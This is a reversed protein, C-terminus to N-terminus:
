CKNFNNDYYYFCDDNFSNKEYEMNFNKDHFPSRLEDGIGTMM